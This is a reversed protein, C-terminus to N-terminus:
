LRSPNLSSKLIRHFFEPSVSVVFSVQTVHLCVQETHRQPYPASTLLRSLDGYLTAWPCVQWCTWRLLAPWKHRACLLGQQPSRPEEPPSCHQPHPFLLFAPIVEPTSAPLHRSTHSHTHINTNTRILWFSSSNGKFPPMPIDTKGVRKLAKYSLEANRTLSTRQQM